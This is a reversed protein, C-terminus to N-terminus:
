FASGLASGNGFASRQSGLNTCFIASLLTAIITPRIANQVAPQQTRGIASHLHKASRQATIFALGFRYSAGVAAREAHQVFFPERLAAQEAPVIPAVDAM